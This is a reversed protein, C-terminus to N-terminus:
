RDVLDGFERRDRRTPPRFAGIALVVVGGGIVAAGIVLGVPRIPEDTSVSSEASHDPAAQGTAASGVFLAGLLGLVVVLSLRALLRVVLDQWQDRSRYRM